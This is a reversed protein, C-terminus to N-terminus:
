KKIRKIQRTKYVLWGGYIMMIWFGIENAVPISLNFGIPAQFIYSTVVYMYFMGPLAAIAMQERQEALYLSIITFTVVAIVQNSWAFYRWLFSFGKSDLKVWVLMCFVCIFIVISILLRNRAKSQDIKLGEGIILRLARLATDGSTIPLIIIGFIAITGGISGIMDKAVLGIVSPTGIFEPAIGKNYIGMAVAAWIMAIVGEAIMMGYFVWRGQREDVLTRSILPTQTSHFGSTIGCAVTLFFAPFLAEDNPYLGKWNSMNIEDLHYGCVFLGILIGFSAVLLFGGFFPYFRGIIKDIPFLTAIVYYILIVGYVSFILYNNEKLPLNLVQSVFVDGPLYVFVAGVLLLTISLFIIYILETKRGIYKQVMTPMQAGDNRMSIMGCFYDHVSGGVINGIPILIFTIPGFLIGLIPGLIPGTGAINLLQILANKNKSIPVYDMGNQLRVAPTQRNDPKMVRVCYASYFYGGVLLVVLGSLFTIM